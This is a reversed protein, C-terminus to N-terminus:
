CSEIAYVYNINEINIFQHTLYVDLAYVLMMYM